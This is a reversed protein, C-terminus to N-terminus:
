LVDYVHGVIVAIVLVFSLITALLATSMLNRRTQAGIWNGPKQAYAELFFGLLSVTMGGFLLLMWQWDEKIFPIIGIFVAITTSMMLTGVWMFSYYLTKM